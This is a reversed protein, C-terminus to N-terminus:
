EYFFGGTMYEKILATEEGLGNTEIDPDEVMIYGSLLNIIKKKALPRGRNANDEEALIFHQATITWGRNLEYMSGASGSAMLTPMASKITSVIGNSVKAAAQAGTDIRRLIGKSKVTDIVGSAIDATTQIANSAAQLYDRTIQALKIPVGVQARHVSMIHGQDNKVFLVGEGTIADIGITMQGALTEAFYSTDIPFYGFLGANLNVRTYPSLNLFNGRSGAQPHPPISYDINKHSRATDKLLDGDIGSDWWGFYIRDTGDTPINASDPFFMCSVVYQMPNTLSKMVETPFAVETIDTPTTKAIASIDYWGPNASFMVACVRVFTSANLAFYQVAGYGGNKNIIGIVYTGTSLNGALPAGINDMSSEDVAITPYLSDTINGDYESSARVVYQESNGIYNKYTALVDTYLEAEWRGLIWTWERIWYYRGFNPIYAYNYNSPNGINQLIIVPNIIGCEEKLICDYTTPTLTNPPQKTSNDRKSFTYLKVTISM